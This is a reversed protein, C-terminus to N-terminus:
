GQYSVPHHPQHHYLRNFFISDSSLNKMVKAPAGAILIYNEEFSKSVVSGMGVFCYSPIEVGPLVRVSSGIYCWNGIKIPRIVDLNDPAIGHCFFQSSRGAVIANSGITVGGSADFYHFGSISSNNGLNFDGSGGGTIWNFLSIRSGRGLRLRNLNWILNFHGIYVYDEIILERSLILSFGIYCNKGISYGLLRLFFVKLCSPFCLTTLRIILTFM